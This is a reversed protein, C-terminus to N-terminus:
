IKAATVADISKSQAHWVMSNSIQCARLKDFWLIQPKVLESSTLGYFKLNSLSQAQWILIQSKVRMAVKLESEIQCALLKDFHRLRAPRSGPRLQRQCAKLKDFCVNKIIKEHSSLSQAQIHGFESSM